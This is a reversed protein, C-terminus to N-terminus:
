AEDRRRAAPRDPRTRGAAPREVVPNSLTGIGDIEVDVRQGDALSGVGAPTGTLVVDGPQLTMVDSIYALVTPIAFIFDDLGSSQRLEGDVRGRLAHDAPEFSEARRLAPGLPCFTDFGKGRTFTKERRQIDRATVDNACTYGAVHELAREPSIRCARRGIVVALEAEHHVQESHPPLHIAEEPGIVASPPKLFILPEEPIPNDLEEAHARYNRGVCVIKSPRSPALVEVQEIGGLERGAEIQRASVAAVRQMSPPLSAAVFRDARREAWVPRADPGVVRFWKM